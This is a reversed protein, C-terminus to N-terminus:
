GEVTWTGHIRLLVVSTVPNMTSITSLEDRRASAQMKQKQATPAVAAQITITSPVESRCCDCNTSSEKAFGRRSFYQAVGSFATTLV